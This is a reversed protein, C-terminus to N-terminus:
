EVVDKFIQISFSSIRIQNAGYGVTVKTGAYFLVVHVVYGLVANWLPLHTM